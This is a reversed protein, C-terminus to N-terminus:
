SVEVSSVDAAPTKKNKFTERMYSATWRPAVGIASYLPVQRIDRIAFIHRCPLHMSTWFTCQCSNATVDLSGNSSSVENDSFVNVKTRLHLQKQVYNTTAYPTLLLEEPSNPPFISVRKKALAM